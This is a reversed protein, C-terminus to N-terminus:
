MQVKNKKEESNNIDKKSFVCRYLKKLVLDRPAPNRLRDVDRIVPWMDACAYDSEFRSASFITASGALQKYRRFLANRSVSVLIWSSPIMWRLCHPKLRKLEFIANQITRIETLVDVFMFPLQFSRVLGDLAEDFFTLSQQLRDFTLSQETYM